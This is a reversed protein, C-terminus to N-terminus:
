HNWWDDDERNEYYERSEFIVAEPHRPIFLYSVLYGSVLGGVHGPISINGMFFTFILNIIILQWIWQRQPASMLDHRYVSIYMLSGLAGFIAGSAGVTWVDYNFYVVIASSLLMSLIYIAATKWTGIIRELGATLIYLGVLANFGLHVIGSHLFAATVLRWYEGYEVVLIGLLAGEQLLSINFLSLILGAIYVTINIVLMTFTFPAERLLQFLSSYRNFSNM